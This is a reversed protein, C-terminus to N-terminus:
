PIEIEALLWSDGLTNGQEDLIELPVNTGEEYMGILLQYRGPPLLLLFPDRLLDGPNWALTPALNNLPAHDDQAALGPVNPVMAHVYGVYNTETRRLPEWYLLVTTGWEDAGLLTYGKLRAVDGFTFNLPIEIEDPEAEYDRYQKMVAIAPPIFQAGEQLELSIPATADGQQVYVGRYNALLSEAGVLESWPLSEAPGRYYYDFAPDTNELVIFDGPRTRNELFLATSRWDPAKPPGTYYDYLSFIPLVAILLFAPIWLDRRIPRYCLMLPAAAPIIYRPRFVDMRTGFIVLLAIPLFLWVTLLFKTQRPLQDLLMSVLALVSIGVWITYAQEGYLLTPLFDSILARLTVRAATGHYDSDILRLVQIGWPILAVGLLIWATLAPRWRNRYYFGLYILQVLLFFPELFFLYLAALEALLYLAWDRQRNRDLASLFFWMALPSFVAWLAYNRVDQAHWVQFPNIAWLFGAIWLMKGHIRRSLALLVPIGLLNILLPLARMAFESEGAATKWAWFALFAGIPHPEWGALDDWTKAPSEAWERVTFAEDGRLSVDDLHYVRLAAGLLILVLTILLRKKV